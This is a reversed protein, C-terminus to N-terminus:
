ENTTDKKFPLTFRRLTSPDTTAQNRRRLAARGDSLLSRPSFRAQQRKWFGVSGTIDTLSSDVIEWYHKVEDESPQGAGFVAADARHALMTTTG